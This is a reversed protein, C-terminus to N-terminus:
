EIRFEGAAKVCADRAEALPLNEGYHTVLYAREDIAIKCSMTTNTCFDLFNAEGRYIICSQEFSKYQYYDLCIQETIKCSGAFLQENASLYNKDVITFHNGHISLCDIKAQYPSISAMKNYYYTKRNYNGDIGTGDCIAIKKNSPCQGINSYYNPCTQHNQISELCIGQEEDYCSTAMTTTVGPESTVLLLLNHVIHNNENESCYCVQFIFFSLILLALFNKM